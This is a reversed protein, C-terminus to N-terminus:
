SILIKPVSLFTKGGPVFMHLGVEIPEFTFVFTLNKKLLLDFTLTLTVPDFHKTGVSLDQWLSCM